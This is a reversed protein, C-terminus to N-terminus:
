KLSSCPPAGSISTIHHTHLASFPRLDCWGVIKLGNSLGLIRSSFGHLLVTAVAYISIKLTIVHNPALWFVFNSSVTLYRPQVAARVEFKARYVNKVWFPFVPRCFFTPRRLCLFGVHLLHSHKASPFPLLLFSCLADSFLSACPVYVM